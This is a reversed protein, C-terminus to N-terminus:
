GGLFTPSPLQHENQNVVNWRGVGRAVKACPCMPAGSCEEVWSVALEDLVLPMWSLRSFRARPAMAGAMRWGGEEGRKRRERAGQGREEAAGLPREALPLVWKCSAGSRGDSCLDCHRCVCWADILQQCHLIRKCLRAAAV